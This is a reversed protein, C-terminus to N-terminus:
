PHADNKAPDPEPPPPAIRARWEIATAPEGAEEAARIGRRLYALLAAEPMKKGELNRYIKLASDADGLRVLTDAIEAFLGWQSAEMPDLNALFALNHKAKAPDGTEELLKAYALGLAPGPTTRMGRAAVRLAEGTTGERKLLNMRRIVAYQNSLVELPNGIAEWQEELGVAFPRYLPDGIAINQWSLAPQAFYIADAFNWGEGLAAFFLDFHHTFRLYPEATNGFTASVGRHVLPGVWGQSTSRVPIASFSHLHAAIAGPPFRFGPMRFPGNLNRAYWGAYLVPEDFRHEGPLTRRSTEHDLDFGLISFVEATDALWENGAAYNGTRGDEDIYARGKLGKEEGELTNRILALVDEASSGDLRTVRLVDRVNGPTRNRFYPNPLFGNLPMDKRLLLALEGDVSAENKAMPGEGFAQVLGQHNGTLQKRRLELDDVEELPLNVVHVPVGYCLVLYRLPNSIVSVSKRGLADPEGEIASILERELLTELIPNRITSVFAERDIKEQDAANIKVLNQAPIDRARMYARAVRMSGDVATNAVVIVSDPSVPEPQASLSRSALIVLACLGWALFKWTRLDMSLLTFYLRAM